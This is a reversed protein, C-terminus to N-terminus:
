VVVDVNAGVTAEPEVVPTVPPTVPPAHKAKAFQSVLAGFDAGKVAPDAAKAQKAPNLDHDPKTKALAAVAASSAHISLSM